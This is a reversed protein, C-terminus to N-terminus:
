CEGVGERIAKGLMSLIYAFDERQGTSLYNVPRSPGPDGKKKKTKSYVLIALDWGDPVLDHQLALSSIKFAAIEAAEM